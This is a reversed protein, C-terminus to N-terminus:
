KLEILKAEDRRWNRISTRDAGYLKSAARNSNNDKAYKVIELKKDITFKKSKRKRPKSDSAEGVIECRTKEQLTSCLFQRFDDMDDVILTRVQPM